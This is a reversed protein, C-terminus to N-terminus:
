GGTMEDTNSIKSREIEDGLYSRVGLELEKGVRGKAQRAQPRQFLFAGVELIPPVRYAHIVRVDEDLGTGSGADVASPNFPQKSGHAVDLRNNNRDTPAMAIPRVSERLCFPLRVEAWCPKRWSQDGFDDATRLKDKRGAQMSADGREAIANRSRSNRRKAISLVFHKVLKLPSSVDIVVFSKAPERNAAALPLIAHLFISNAKLTIPILHGLNRSM